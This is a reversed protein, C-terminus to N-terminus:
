YFRLHNSFGWGVGGCASLRSLRRGIVERVGEPISMEAINLSSAWGGDERTIKGEEVLHLLVERIFFPNGATEAAIAETLSAPVEQEAIVGLLEGVDGQELGKLVIREADAERRLDALAAALPHQRDLEIDRYAGLILLRQGKATRAVHRLMAITGNDAWHLDDLVLVLPAQATLSAILESVAELLRYRESEAPLTPPEAIDGVREYLAPVIRALVGANTGLGLRLAEPGLSEAYQKIAEAFPSFPPAWEGDYCRGWLVMAGESRAYECFEQATRTKGIGPEGVLMVVGGKGARAADLKTRLTSTEAGRGVFPTHQLMALPDHEYVVEHVSVPDTIGKLRQDGRDEFHLDAHSGLLSRVIGSALIQGAEAQNCLRSAIVVTTGFFDSADHRLAEGHNLGARIRLREGGQPRRAAQQMAIACRVADAASAFAVMLGDGTWKVEDGHHEAVAERLVRHHAAFIRQAREDGARQLLETSDVLDTFLITGTTARPQTM